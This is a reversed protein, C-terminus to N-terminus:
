FRLSATVPFHDSINREGVMTRVIDAQDILVGRTVLLYDIREGDTKNKFGNFTGVGHHDTPTPPHLARFTDSLAEAALRVTESREGDNFDGALIVPDAQLERAAIRDLVLRVGKERAPQSMHDLHTNFVYFGRKTARDTLHAWTCIRLCAAKWTNSVVEPTDSLWFTRSADLQFRDMKFLIACGEGENLGDDRGAFVVGYGPLAANIEDVQFKLAEQLCLIDPSETRLVEFLGERRRPWANEGDMATGYRINFSMASLATTPIPSPADKRTPKGVRSGPAVACAALLFCGFLLALGILLRM